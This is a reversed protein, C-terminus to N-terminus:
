ADDSPKAPENPTASQEDRAILVQILDALALADATSLIVASHVHPAHQMGLQEAFAIRLGASINHGIFRNTHVAPVTYAVELQEQTVEDVTSSNEQVMIKSWKHFVKFKM